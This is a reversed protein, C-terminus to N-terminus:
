MVELRTDDIWRLGSVPGGQGFLKPLLLELRGPDKSTLFQITGGAEGERL